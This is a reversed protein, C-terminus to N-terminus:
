AGPRINQNMRFFNSPDYKKKIATLRDFNAGYANRVREEEDQTLFNVYVAGTAFPACAKFLDRAWAVVKGDNAPEGWRGHVNILYNAERHSYATVDNKVRGVAGGLQAFALETQPDPLRGAAALLVDILGDSLELFDHSKWYNRQGPSLLPDLVSQWATFPHPQIIDAIKNGFSRLPELAKEGAAIDGVWCAALALIEKGHWQEPLFPLPPAQRLVFWVALEDPAKSTFERYFQLVKRADALPHIILGSLVETGIKHAKFEFSTVIGFNGGGGRVAWFLDAHDRENATVKEGAATVVNVSLLNDVTLGYKRSIWGFGGGLTLGAVGTTSNIGVPVALGHAQTGQDLDALTAGGEVRVTQKAADVTVAKMRSLDIVLGDDIMANGAINHGGGRVAVLLGHQKAFRVAAVVDDAGACRAILAPRRDIMANWIARAQDYGASDSTLLEGQLSKGFASAASADVITSAGNSLKVNVGAMITEKPLAHALFGV